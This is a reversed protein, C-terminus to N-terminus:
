RDTFKTPRCMCFASAIGKRERCRQGGPAPRKWSASLEWWTRRYSSPRGMSPDTSMAKRRSICSGALDIRPLAAAPGALSRQYRRSGLQRSDGSLADLNRVNGAYTLKDLTVVDEGTTAILDLVFNAGIFGAGGTVLLM